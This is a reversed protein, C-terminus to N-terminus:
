DATPRQMQSEIFADVDSAKYRVIRGIKLYPIARGDPRCRWTKLTNSTVGIRDAAEQTSLWYERIKDM